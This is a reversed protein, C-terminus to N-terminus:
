GAANLHVGNITLSTDPDDLATRTARFVDAFGVEEAAAVESMAQVYLEIRDNNEDAAPVGEINESAIPSILVVRPGTEGNFLSAKLNQLYVALEDRFDSLGDEGRFSENFGFAAFVVDIGERTLHQAVSAFNDPRPQLTIEDASWSFNRITLELEPHAQYVMSEFYGFQGARETLTNGIFAIRDGKELALPLKTSVPEGMEPTPSNEAYIGYNELAPDQPPPEKELQLHKADKKNDLTGPKHQAM